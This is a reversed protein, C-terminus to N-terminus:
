WRCLSGCFIVNFVNACILADWAVCVVVLFISQPGITVALVM